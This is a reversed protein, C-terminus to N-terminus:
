ISTQWARSGWTSVVGSTLVRGWMWLLGSMGVDQPHVPNGVRGRARLLASPLGWGHVPQISTPTCTGKTPM